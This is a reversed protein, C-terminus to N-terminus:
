GAGRAYKLEVAWDVHKLYLEEIKESTSKFEDPKFEHSDLSRYLKEFGGRFKEIKGKTTKAFFDKASQREQPTLSGKDVICVSAPPEARRLSPDKVVKLTRELLDHHGPQTSGLLLTHGMPVVVYEGKGDMNPLVTAQEGDITAETAALTKKHRGFHEGYKELLRAKVQGSDLRDGTVVVAIELPGASADAVIGLSLKAKDPTEELGWDKAIKHGAARRLVTLLDRRQELQDSVYKYSGSLDVLQLDKPDSVIFADYAVLRSCASLAAAISFLRKLATKM